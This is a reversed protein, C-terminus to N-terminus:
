VILYVITQGVHLVNHPRLTVLKGYEICEPTVVPENKELSLPFVLSPM